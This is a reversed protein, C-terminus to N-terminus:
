TTPQLVEPIEGVATGAKYRAVADAVTMHRLVNGAGPRKARKSYHPQRQLQLQRAVWKLAALEKPTVAVTVRKSLAM